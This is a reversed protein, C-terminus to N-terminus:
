MDKNRKKAALSQRKKRDPRGVHWGSCHPCKYARYEFGLKMAHSSATAQSVHKIKSECARKRLHRKSAM